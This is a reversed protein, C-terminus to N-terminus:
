RVYKGVRAFSDVIFIIFIGLFSYLILEETVSGTKENKQEELLHIMYNLKDSLSNGNPLMQQEDDQTQNQNFTKNYNPMNSYYNHAYTDEINSFGEINVANDDDGESGDNGKYYPQDDYENENQKDTENNDDKANYTNKDRMMKREVGMSMPPKIPKFDGLSCNSNNNDDQQKHIREVFAKVQPIINNQRKKITKNHNNKKIDCSETEEIPSAYLALSNM